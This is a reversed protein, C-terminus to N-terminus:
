RKPIGKFPGRKFEIRNALNKFIAKKPELGLAREIALSAKSYEHRKMHVRALLYHLWAKEDDLSIGGQITLLTVGLDYGNAVMFDSKYSHADINRPDNGIWEDFLAIAKAHQNQAQWGKAAWYRFGHEFKTGKFKKMMALFHQTGIVFDKKVRMLWRGWIRGARAGIAGGRAIAMLLDNNADDEFGRVLRAQALDIVASWDGPTERVKKELNKVGAHGKFVARVAAVYERRGPYGEVRGMEKGKSDLVLTTPLNIVGYDRVVKQGQETDFDVKVGIARRLLRKGGEADLVEMSLQNCPSCWDAYVDVLIPRKTRKITSALDGDIWVPPAAVILLAAM